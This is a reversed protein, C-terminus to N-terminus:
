SFAHQPQSSTVAADAEENTQGDTMNDHNTDHCSSFNRINTKCHATKEWIKPSLLEDCSTHM